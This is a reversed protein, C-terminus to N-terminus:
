HVARSNDSFSNKKDNKSFNIIYILSGAIAVNKFFPGLDNLNELQVSLTINILMLLLVLAAQKQFKGALLLLAGAIMLVGTLLISFHFLQAQPLFGYLTSEKIRSFIKEPHLLHKVGAYLFIFSTFVRFLVFSTQKNM